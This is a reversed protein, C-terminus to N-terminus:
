DEMDEFVSWSINYRRKRFVERIAREQAETLITNIVLSYENPQPYEKLKVVERNLMSLKMALHIDEVLPLLERINCSSSFRIDVNNEIM